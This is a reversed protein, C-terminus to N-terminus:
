CGARRRGWYGYITQDNDGVGFVALEPGALLRLLLLHAPTLDQFEDVLLVRCQQQARRRVAPDRLLLEVAGAIQEDFDVVGRRALERRHRPYVEAFGDVEGGFEAEVQCLAAPRAPRVLQTSGRRPRIPTPGAPSGCWSTSSGRM